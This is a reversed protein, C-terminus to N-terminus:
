GCAAWHGCGRGGAWVQAARENQVSIPADAAHAYGKYNNWTGDMFQWCGNAGSGGLNYATPKYGVGGVEKDLVSQPPTGPATHCRGSVVPQRITIPAGVARGSARVPEYRPPAQTEIGTIEPLFNLGKTPPSEYTLHYAAEATGTVAVFSLYVALAVRAPKPVIRM